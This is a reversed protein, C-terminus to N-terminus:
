LSTKVQQEPQLKALQSVPGVIVNDNPKLGTLVQRDFDDAMGLEVQRVQVRNDADVVMVQAVKDKELNRLSKIPVVLSDAQRQAIIEVRCSMGSYITSGFDNTVEIEVAFYRGKKGAVAKSQEAIFAIKGEVKAGDPSIPFVYAAQGIHIDGRDAEDVYVRTFITSQDAIVLQPEINGYIELGTVLEGELVNVSTVVGDLPSKITYKELLYQGYAYEDKAAQYALELSQTRSQERQIRLSLDEFEEVAVLAKKNLDALRAHRKQLLEVEIKQQEIELKRMQAAEHLRRIAERHAVSDVQMLLQGSTVTDGSKVTLQDVKGQVESNLSVQRKYEFFGSALIVREITKSQVREVEVMVIEDAHLVRGIIPSSVLVALFVVTIKKM